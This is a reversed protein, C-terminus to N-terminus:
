SLPLYTLYGVRLHIIYIYIEQTYMCLHVVTTVCNNAFTNKLSFTMCTESKMIVLGFLVQWM